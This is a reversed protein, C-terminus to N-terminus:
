VDCGAMILFGFLFAKRGLIFPAMLILHIFSCEAACDPQLPEAIEIKAGGM